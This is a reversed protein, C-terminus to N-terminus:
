RRITCDDATTKMLGPLTPSDPTNVYNRYTQDTGGYKASFHRCFQSTGFGTLDV